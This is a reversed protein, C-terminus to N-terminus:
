KAFVNSMATLTAFHLDRLLGLVVVEDAITGEAAKDGSGIVNFIDMEEDPSEPPDHDM